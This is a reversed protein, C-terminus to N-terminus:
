KCKPMSYSPIIFWLRLWQQNIRFYRWTINTKNASIHSAIVKVKSNGGLNACHNYQCISCNQGWSQNTGIPNITISTELAITNWWNFDGTESTKCNSKSFYGLCIDGNIGALSIRFYIYYIYLKYNKRHLYMHCRIQCIFGLPGTIGTKFLPLGHFFYFYLPNGTFM